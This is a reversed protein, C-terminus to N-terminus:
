VDMDLHLSKKLQKGEPCHNICEISSRIKLVAIGIANSRKEVFPVSLFRQMQTQDTFHHHEASCIANFLSVPKTCIFMSIYMWFCSGIKMCFPLICEFSIWFYWLLCRKWKLLDGIALPYKWHQPQVKNRPPCNSRDLTTLNISNQFGFSKSVYIYSSTVQNQYWNFWNWAKQFTMEPLKEGLKDDEGIQSVAREVSVLVALQLCNQM